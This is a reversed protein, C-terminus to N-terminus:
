KKFPKEEVATLCDILKKLEDFRSLRTIYAVTFKDSEPNTLPAGFTEHVSIVILPTDKIEASQKIRHAAAFSEPPPLNSDFLILDYNIKEAAAVAENEDAVATIKYDDMELLQKMGSRTAEDPEIILLNTETNIIQPTM